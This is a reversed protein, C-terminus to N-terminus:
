PIIIQVPANRQITTGDGLAGSANHGWAMLSGDNRIALSHSVGASVSSWNIATGIRIPSNHNTLTGNGLRGYLNSGWAWLSGDNRIALTHVEGASVSSWNTATGVQVPRTPTPRNTQPATIGNGLQGSMNEGWAWLTGDTGIAMTHNTGSSVFAWSINGTTRINEIRTPILRTNRTGDGLQSWFNDGWAWLSGDTKLAVTHTGGASVSAWNYDTGIQTPINSNTTSGNGLQYTNNRGWVWLSGDTKLAVSHYSGASVSAWNSETGIRVPTNRNTNTGVGLQGYQNIGWAWLSGDACIALTHDERADVKKWKIEAGIRVPSTRNVITGEGLQSDQNYGWAWISGDTRTSVTYGYGASVSAWLPNWHAYLITDSSPIYAANANLKIGTGDANNNWGGFSFDNKIFGNGNPLIIGSGVIVTQNVPISGSGGNINYTVEYHTQLIVNAQLFLIIPNRDQDNTLITLTASTNGLKDPTFKVTFTSQNGISINNVPDTIKTFGMSEDNSIEIGMPNITLVEVGTNKITINIDKSRTIFIEGINITGNNLIEKDEYFVSAIPKLPIGTASINFSYDGSQNNSHITVVANYVQAATPKFNITFPLSANPPIVSGTPQIVSFASAGTGTIRISELGDLILNNTGTNKLIFENQTTYNAFEIGLNEIGNKPVNSGEREIAVNPAFISNYVHSLTGSIGGTITTIPTNNIFTFENVSGKEFSFLQETRCRIPNNNVSLYFYIPNLNNDSVTMTKEVGTNLNGFNVSSYEISLLAYSSLNNIKLTTSINEDCGTFLLSFLLLAFLYKKM